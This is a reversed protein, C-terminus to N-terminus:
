ATWYHDSHTKKCTRSGLSSLFGTPHPAQCWYLSFYRSISHLHSFIRLKKRKRNKRKWLFSCEGHSCVCVDSTFIALNWRSQPHTFSLLCICQSGALSSMWKKKGWGPLWCNCVHACTLDETAFCVTDAEREIWQSSGGLRIDPLWMLGCEGNLADPM